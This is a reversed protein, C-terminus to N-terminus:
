CTSVILERFIICYHRFMYPCHLLSCCLLSDILQANTPENYLCRNQIYLYVSLHTKKSINCLVYTFCKLSVNCFQERLWNSYSNVSHCLHFLLSYLYVYLYHCNFILFSLSLSLLFIFFSFSFVAVKLLSIIDTYSEIM